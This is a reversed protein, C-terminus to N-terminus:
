ATPVHSDGCEHLNCDGRLMVLSEVCGNCDPTAMLNYKVDKPEVRFQEYADQGDICSVYKHATVQYLMVRQDPLPSALKRTNSHRGRLDVTNRMKIPEDPATHKKLFMLPAANASTAYCWRGSKLYVDRKATWLSRFAEPCRSPRFPYSKLPDIIPIEHNMKRLPPLTTESAKRCLPAAYALEKRATELQSELSDM